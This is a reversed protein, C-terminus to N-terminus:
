VQSCSLSKFRERERSHTHRAGLEGRGSERIVTNHNSNRERERENERGRKRVIFAQLSRLVEVSGASCSPVGSEPVWWSGRGERRGGLCGRRGRWRSRGGTPLLAAACTLDQDEM